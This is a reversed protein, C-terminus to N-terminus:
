RQQIDRSAALEALRNANTQWAAIMEAAANAQQTWARETRDGLATALTARVARILTDRAERALPERLPAATLDSLLTELDDVWAAVEIPPDEAFADRPILNQSDEHFGRLATDEDWLTVRPRWGLVRRWQADRLFRMGARDFHEAPTTSAVISPDSRRAAAWLRLRTAVLRSADDPVLRRVEDLLERRRDTTSARAAELNEVLSDATKEAPTVAAAGVLAPSLAALVLIALTGLRVLLPAGSIWALAWAATTVSGIVVFRRTRSSADFLGMAWALALSVLDM